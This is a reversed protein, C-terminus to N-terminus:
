LFLWGKLLSFFYFFLFCFICSAGNTALPETLMTMDMNDWHIMCVDCVGGVNM